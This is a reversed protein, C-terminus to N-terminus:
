RIKSSIDFCFVTGGESGVYVNEDDVFPTSRVPTETVAKWALRGSQVNVAYLYGDDSGFFVHDFKARPSSYIPGGAEFRWNQRGTNIKLSYLYADASGVLVLDNYVEPRGAIGDTAPFKWVFEGTEANLAYLNNDYAGVMVLGQAVQPSARVEDECRFQWIPNIGDSSLGSQTDLMVTRRPDPAAAGNAAPKLAPATEALPKLVALLAMADQYRERPEYNLCREVIAEFQPTVTKNVTRIPREAFSFPVEMRPDQKTLLHHLTAGLAFIDGAPSSEGRYQEPPSYGETGMMTHRADQQFVKAINFDIIHVRGHVNLMLNSPKVDRFVLPKTHHGHLYALVECTQIAWDLVTEQPMPGPSEALIADLDKGQIYELVLYSRDAETFYDYVDPISPHKLTALIGAEREFSRVAIERLKADTALNVM